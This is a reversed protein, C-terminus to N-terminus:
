ATLAAFNPEDAAAARPRRTPAPLATGNMRAEYYARAVLPVGAINVVYPWHNRELWRKMCALSRPRCGVLEALELTSLYLSM